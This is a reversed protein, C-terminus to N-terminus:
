AAVEELVAVGDVDTVDRLRDLADPEDLVYADLFAVTADIVVDFWPAVSVFPPTHEGNVLTVFYKPPPAREFASRGLPFLVLDDSDGHLMLLPPGDDAFWDGAPALVAAGAYAVVADLRDDACCSHYGAMLSTVAGLSHGAAAVHEADVLDFFRPDELVADILFALDAPQNRVDLTQSGGVGSTRPYTPAVAVYGAEALREAVPDLFPGAASLGHSLVLLPFSGTADPHHVLVPLARDRGADEYEAEFTTVEYPRGDVVSSRVAVATTTPAAAPAGADGSCGAGALVVVVLAAPWRRM